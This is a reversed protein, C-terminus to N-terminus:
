DWCLGGDRFELSMQGCKPCRYKGDTLELKRGLRNEMNWEAVHRHGPSAWLRADDYPIPNPARCLPCKVAKALLNVQVVSRCNECLCPFFCTTTSNRM